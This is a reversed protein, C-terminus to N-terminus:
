KHRYMLFRSLTYFIIGFFGTLAYLDIDGAGRALFRWAVVVILLILFVPFLNVGVDQVAGHKILDFKEVSEEKALDEVAREIGLPNGGANQLIWRKVRETSISKPIKYERYFKDVLEEAEEKTLPLMEVQKLDWLFRKLEAKEFKKSLYRTTGATFFVVNKDQMLEYYHSASTATLTHIEDLMLILKRRKLREKIEEVLELMTGRKVEKWEESEKGKPLLRQMVRLLIQKPPKCYPFYIWVEGKLNRKEKYLGRMLHSKGIGHVGKLLVSNGKEIQELIEEKVEERM